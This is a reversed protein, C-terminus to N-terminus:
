QCEPYTSKLQSIWIDFLDFYTKAQPTGGVSLPVRVAKAGTRQAILRPAKEDFYNATLMAQIGLSQIQEILKALHRASPPIGPKTEVYNEIEIGFRRTFYIWNKHYAIIKKDRLCRAEGLWGGLFVTLKKGQFETQELFSELQWTEGLRILQDAGVLQLLKAGFLRRLIESRFSQYNAEYYESGPPDVKSLANMVNEAIQIGKLPDTHVHPNGYIHTDGVTRSPNVPIQLFRMGQSISVYGPTGERIRSNHSKDILTPVWLELDMGTTLFLDATAMHRAFSPKAKVFHADQYGRSISIVEIREGGVLEAISAYDPLSSVVRLKTAAASPTAAAITLLLSLTISKM